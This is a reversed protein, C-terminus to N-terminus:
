APADEGDLVVAGDAFARIEALTAGDPELGDYAFLAMMANEEVGNYSPALPRAQAAIVPYADLVAENSRSPHRRQRGYYTGFPNMSVVPKDKQELRMPCHAMSGLVQRANALIIGTEGDSLGVMGGTLHHNFSALTDNEPVSEWFTAVRYTSIDDMFNRKVVCLDRGLAPRLQMPVAQHWKMDSKRGLASSHTSIETEELTYPYKTRMQIFICDIGDVAFVDLTSHGAELEGPLHIDSAIRLGSATGGLALPVIKKNRFRYDKEDYTLYSRLFDKGGIQRGKYALRLTNGHECFQWDMTGTKVRRTEAAEAAKGKSLEIAHEKTNDSFKCVLYISKLSGDEYTDMPLVGYSALGDAQVQLASADAAFGPDLGLQAGTIGSGGSTLLPLKKNKAQAALEKSVAVGSLDLAKRERDVNLVPSALGFHTTSLLEVRDQFSPSSADSQALRAFARARELRTWIQRNFPKEAWSAYGDFNGDATDQTFSVATLPKHTKLYNGPTDYVIFDLDAVEEALGRIGMTNALKNLPSPLGFPEWFVADADMNIFIFVDNNIEGRIQKEHLDLALYRLSGADIVAT